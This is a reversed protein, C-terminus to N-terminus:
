ACLLIQYDLMNIRKGCIKCRSKREICTGNDSCVTCAYTGGNGLQGGVGIVTPALILSHRDQSIILNPASDNAATNGDATWTINFPVLTNILHDCSITLTVFPPVNIDEGVNAFTESM